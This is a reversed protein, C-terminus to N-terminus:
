RMIDSILLRNTPAHVAVRNLQVTNTPAHVAVRNLQVTEWDNLFNYM